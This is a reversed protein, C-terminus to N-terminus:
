PSEKRFVGTTYADMADAVWRELGDPSLPDTGLVDALHDQLLIMSLDNAMLFAARVDPDASPEMAGTATAQDVYRRTLEFWQRILRRGAPDGSLILRRLYAPIPSAAPTAALLVDIMSVATDQTVADIPMDLVADFIGAVYEDAADRLGQKSGYHHLILAPSVQACAAIDRVTVADTGSAAFLKLACELIHDRATAAPQPDAASIASPDTM